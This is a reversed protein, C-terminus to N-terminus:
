LSPRGARELVANAFTEMPDQYQRVWALLAAKQGDKVHSTVQSDQPSNNLTTQALQSLMKMANGQSRDDVKTSEVMIPPVAFRLFLTGVIALQRTHKDGNSDAHVQKDLEGLTDIVEQPLEDVKGQIAEDDTGGMLEEMLRDTARCVNRLGKDGLQSLASPVPDAKDSEAQVAVEKEGLEVEAALDRALTAASERYSSPLTSALHESLAKAATSNGRFLLKPDLLKAPGQKGTAPDAARGLDVDFEARVADIAANRSAESAAERLAALGQQKAGAANPHRAEWREIAQALEALEAIKERPKLSAAQAAYADAKQLINGYTTKGLFPLANRIRGWTVAKGGSKVDARLDDADYALPKLSRTQLKSSSSSSAGAGGSLGSAQWLHGSETLALSARPSGGDEQSIRRENKVSSGGDSLRLSGLSSLSSTSTQVSGMIPGPKKTSRWKHKVARANDLAEEWM